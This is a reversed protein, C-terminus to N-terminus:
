KDAQNSAVFNIFPSHSLTREQEIEAELVKRKAILQIMLQVLEDRKSQTVANSSLEDAVSFIQAQVNQIQAYVPQLGTEASQFANASFAACFFTAV